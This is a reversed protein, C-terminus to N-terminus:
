YLYPAGPPSSPGGQGMNRSLNFHICQLPVIQSQFLFTFTFVNNYYFLPISELCSIYFPLCLPSSCPWVLTKSGSGTNVWIRIRNKQLAPVPYPRFIRICIWSKLNIRTLIEFKSVNKKVVKMSYQSLIFYLHCLIVFIFIFLSALICFYM